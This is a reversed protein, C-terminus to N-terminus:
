EAFLLCPPLLGKGVANFVSCVTFLLGVVLTESLFAQTLQCGGFFQAPPPARSRAPPRPPRAPPRATGARARARARVKYMVGITVLSGGLTVAALAVYATRWNNSLCGPEYGDAAMKADAADM